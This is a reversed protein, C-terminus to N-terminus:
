MVCPFACKRGFVEQWNRRVGRDHPWCPAMSYDFSEISTYNHNVMDWHMGLFALLALAFGCSFTIAILALTIDRCLWLEVHPM